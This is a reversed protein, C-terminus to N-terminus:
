TLDHYEALKQVLQRTTRDLIDHVRGFGEEGGYYPDPVAYDEPETDLERLLRVKHGWDDGEDLALVDLLNDRDMVLIHDYYALDTAQFQRARHRDLSVGRRAAEAATRADAGAGVHWGGTGCSAIEFRQALGMEEAHRQFLAEALPSRCINGMCVFLVRVPRNTDEPAESEM